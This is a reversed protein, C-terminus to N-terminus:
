NNIHCDPVNYPWDCVLIDPNFVLGPPCCEHGHIEGADCKYFCQCNEPDPADNQDPNTEGDCVNPGPWPM